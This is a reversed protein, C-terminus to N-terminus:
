EGKWFAEDIYTKLIINTEIYFGKEQETLKGQRYLSELKRQQERLRSVFGHTPHGSAVDRM